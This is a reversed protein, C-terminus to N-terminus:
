GYINIHLKVAFSPDILGPSVDLNRRMGDLRVDPVHLALLTPPLCDHLAEVDVIAVNIRPM